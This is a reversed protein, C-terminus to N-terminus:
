ANKWSGHKRDYLLTTKIVIDYNEDYNVHEYNGGIFGSIRVHNASLRFYKCAM